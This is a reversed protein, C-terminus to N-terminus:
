GLGVLYGLNGFGILTPMLIIIGLIIMIIGAVVNVALSNRDYSEARSKLLSNAGGILLLLGLLFIVAEFLFGTGM